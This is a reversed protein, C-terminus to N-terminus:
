KPIELKPLTKQLELVKTTMSIVSLLLNFVYKPDESFDNPDNLNESDSDTKVVYRDMVWEIPSKGNVLYSYAEDPVNNITIFQNFYISSKNGKSGFRMKEVRYLKEENLEDNSIEVSVLDNAFNEYGLHIEALKKGFQVYAGFDKLLPVRPSEKKLEIKYRAIFEPSSLVGYVYYFIEEKSVSKGYKSRFIELAWDSIGDMKSDEQSFAFLTDATTKSKSDEYYYLPYGQGTDMSHFNPVKDSILAGYAVSAGPGTMNIVLNEANDPFLSTTRYPSWIMQRQKYVWMKQFPRYNGLTIESEDFVAKKGNELDKILNQVWSIKSKEARVYKETPGGSKLYEDVIANYNQIMRKMNDSLRTPSYNYSWADRNTVIGKSFTRFIAQSEKGKAERDGLPLFSSYTEDRQNIWDGSDNPLLRTWPIEDVNGYNSVIKLKDERSLYDGIDYYYIDIPGSHSPNRVLLTIAVPTRSGEGFIKGGEMRSLEGQTRQNGRLNFVYASSFEQSLSKRFGDASNSDIWSGNTVFCVIGQKKIRNSAWRFAKFYSDYVSTRTKSSSLKVYTKSISEDLDPYKMNQNGQNADTQGVSYPPNGFIVQIDANKQKTLKANNDKFVLDDLIDDSEFMQFTDTLVLGNFPEYKGDNMSGFVSEINVAAIYYALLIIENAHIENRFKQLIDKKQIHGSQMLRAIFTGTGTFPDIIHVNKESLSTGFEKKMVAQVSNIIFDVVEIPTYVIGLKEATRPFAYKFFKEYLETIVRQKGELNDIGAVRLRVDAYFSELIKKDTDVFREELVDVMSQMVQSVSNSKAFGSQGFIAEFVPQTILHQALMEIADEQTISENLNGQLGRLFAKFEKAVKSNPKELFENIQSVHREAIQAVDKAWTEWYQRTGVKEVMKAFIAQRIEELPFELMLARPKEEGDENTNSPETEESFGVPVIEIMEPAENNLDLKNVVANIREDHSRLANLVQWVGAYRKNDSLAEEPSIGAPIGIPLIVYGYKKDANKRMVRGVAQIVDVMSNRPELFVIADLSPVDVGETLCKANSLVHCMSQPPESKLWGLLEERKFSNFSGDVHDVAVSIALDSDTYTKFRESVESFLEKFKKSNNITNSFAVIRKMPSHDNVFYKDTPDHKAFANLCGVIRTADDLKLEHNSDSLQQQFASAVADENVTLVLVKYDTLLDRNVAEAFGLRYFEEGYTEYDDMSALLADAADAKAKASDGYVRPTATMYLRKAGEIYSDDHVRTFASDEEGMLTVGTTRHAEDAIILDFKGFGLKQAEHIIGISQYTSLIVNMKDKSSVTQFKEILLKTDTTAPIALDYPSMDETERRRGAKADSCVAFVNIPISSDATWEKVTQSLLSISPVLLLVNGGTGVLDESICQATYTKGTGCAMILKGRDHEKFGDLVATIAEIQHKRRKKGDVLKLKTIKEASLSDWDIMSNALADIGIRRVPKDQGKLSNEAHVTWLNTTSVIIRHTFPAKGSETFFSDIDKKDLITTPAYNKCQIATFGSGDVNEAVLDIGTDPLGKRDPWDSWLWVNKFQAVYTPEVRFFALMLREFKDGVEKSSSSSERIEELLRHIGLIIGELTKITLLVM